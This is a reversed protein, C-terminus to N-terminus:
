VILEGSLLPSIFHFVQSPSFIKHHEGNRHEIYEVLKCYCAVLLVDIPKCFVHSKHALTLQIYM